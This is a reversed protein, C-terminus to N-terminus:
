GPKVFTRARGRNHVKPLSLQTKVAETNYFSFQQWMAAVKNVDGRCSDFLAKLMFM